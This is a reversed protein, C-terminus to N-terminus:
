SNVQKVTMGKEKFFMLDNSITPTLTKSLNKEMAMQQM